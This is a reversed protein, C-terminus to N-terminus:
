QMDRLFNEDDIDGWNEEEVEQAIQLLQIDDEDSLWFEDIRCASNDSCTFYQILM